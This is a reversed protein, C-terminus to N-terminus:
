AQVIRLQTVRNQELAEIKIKFGNYEVLEGPKPFRGLQHIVFGAITDYEGEPINLEYEDNLDDIDASGDVLIDGTRTQKYELEEEPIDHEDFVDGVIEEVLDEFTVIGDVGGHEDLVLALQVSDKQFRRLVAGVSRDGQVAAVPRMYNTIAFHEVKTTALPLLDKALVLGRVDDLADGTVLLRSFGHEKFVEILDTLSIDESVTIIDARPTMVESVRKDSLKIVGEILDKENKKISGAATSADLLDTLDDVSLATVRQAASKLNLLKLLILSIDRLVHACPSIVLGFIWLPYSFVQLVTEPYRYAVARVLQVIIVALSAILLVAALGIVLLWNYNWNVVVLMVAESNRILQLLRLLMMGSLFAALYMGLQTAVAYFEIKELILRATPIAFKFGREPDDLRSQRSNSVAVSAMM